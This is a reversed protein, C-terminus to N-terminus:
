NKQFINKSYQFILSFIELDITLIESFTSSPITKLTRKVKLQRMSHFITTGHKGWNKQTMKNSQLFTTLLRLFVLTEIIEIPQVGTLYLLM